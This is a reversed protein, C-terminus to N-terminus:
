RTLLAACRPLLKEDTLDLRLPTVSVYGAKLAAYDSKPNPALDALEGDLWYYSNRRPDTRRRYFESFRSSGMVTARLGKIRRPPLNPINANLLLLKKAALVAKALRLAIQAAYDYHLGTFGDISVAIAPIGMAFAEMAASVTGSALLNIGVNAGPNVGSIVIDPRLRSLRTIGMKVCDAPTGDVAFRRAGNRHIEHVRLPRHLTISTGKASQQSLPAVTSARPGFARELAALGEAHIGDDNVLLARM